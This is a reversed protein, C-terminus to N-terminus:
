NIGQGRPIQARAVNLQDDNNIDNALREEDLVVLTYWLVKITQSVIAMQVADEQLSAPLVDKHEQVFVPTNLSGGSGKLALLDPLIPSYTSRVVSLDHCTEPTDATVATSDDHGIHDLMLNVAHIWTTRLQVEEPALPRGATQVPCADIWDVLNPVRRVRAAQVAM